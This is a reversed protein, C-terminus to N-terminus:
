GYLEGLVVVLALVNGPVTLANWGADARNKRGIWVSVVCAALTPVLFAPNNLMGVRGGIVLYGALVVAAWARVLWWAPRLSALYDVTVRGVTTARCADRLRRLRVPDPLGAIAESYAARWPAAGVAVGVIVVTGVWPVLLFTTAFADFQFLVLWVLTGGVLLRLWWTAVRQVPPTAAGAPPPAGAAAGRAAAVVDSWRPVRRTAVGLMAVCLLFAAAVAVIGVYGLGYGLMPVPIAAFPVALVCWALLTRAAPVPAAAPGTALPLGAAQRLEAAYAQPTGLRAVLLDWLADPEPPPAEGASWQAALESAVENLHDDLDEALEGLDAVTLDALCARVEGAYREVPDVVVDQHVARM